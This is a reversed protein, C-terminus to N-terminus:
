QEGFLGCMVPLLLRLSCNQVWKELAEVQSSKRLFVKNKQAPWPGQHWPAQFQVTLYDILLCVDMDFM